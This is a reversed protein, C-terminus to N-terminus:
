ENFIRNRLYNRDIKGNNNMPIKKYYKLRKPLMYHPLKQKLFAMLEQDCQSHAEYVLYLIKRSEDYFVCCNSISSCKFAVAEIDALEIRYGLHKIQTDGRGKYVLDWNQDYYALDGTKYLKEPYSSNLPNQIFAEDTKQPLNYYGLALCSGRVYIEGIIGIETIENQNNDLLLVKTNRCPKGIPVPADTDLAHDLIKFTCDVTIETPGYLNAFLAGPIKEFWYNFVPTPMAEGAFLVVKLDGAYNKLSDFKMLTAMVTPVWFLHTVQKTCILSVVEAPFVFTKSPIILLKSGKAITVYIDLVSNDFYFPAQNGIISNEDFPFTDIAWDIYDIISRHSVTVGKPTGTTGSTTIIYAPDSDVVRPFEIIDDTNRYDDYNGSIFIKDIDLGLNFSLSEFVIVCVPDISLLIDKIRSQPNDVDIPVYFNGSKLVGLIAVISWVSRPVFIAVPRNSNQHKKLLSAVLNSCRNLESFSLETICDDVAIRDGFKVVSTKLYELVNIKM